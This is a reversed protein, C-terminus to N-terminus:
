RACNACLGYFDLRTDSLTYSSSTEAKKRLRELQVDYDQIADCQRCILHAHPTIHTGDYRRGGDSFELEMVEGMEKLTDITKYVTALSTTPFDRQVQRFVQEVTPHTRDEGLIGVIGLRQPTLRYGHSRLASVMEDYRTM